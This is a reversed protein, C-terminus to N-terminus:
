GERGRSVLLHLEAERRGHHHRLLHASFDAVNLEVTSSRESLDKELSAVFRSGRFFASPPPPTPPFSLRSLPLFAMHQLPISTTTLHARGFSAPALTITKLTGLARAAMLDTADEDFPDRGTARGERGGEEGAGAASEGSGGGKGQGDKRGRGEEGASGEEGDANSEEGKGNGAKEGEKNDGEQQAQGDQGRQTSQKDEGEDEEDSSSDLPAIAPHRRLLNHALAVVVIAGSPPACLSLRFLQKTFAAAMYAPLLPSALSLDLLEFFKARHTARFVSSDLLRYLRPYFHPAELGHETVLRFLSALAAVACAGGQEYSATLFDSLPPIPSWLSSSPCPATPRTLHHPTHPTVVACPALPILIYWQTPLHHPYYLFLMHRPLIMPACPLFHVLCKLCANSSTLPSLPPPLAPTGEQLSRPASAPRAAGAVGRGTGQAGGGGGSGVEGGGGEGQEGEEERGGEDKMGRLGNGAASSGQRDGESAVWVRSAGGSSREGQAGCPNPFLRACPLAATLPHHAPLHACTLSFRSRCTLSFRSRCTLSFRSRCTLSFRSRCALSFLSRCTLSFRSRCTRPLLFPPSAVWPLCCAGSPPAPLAWTSLLEDQEGGGQGVEALLRKGGAKPAPPMPMALLVDLINLCMADQSQHTSPTTLIPSFVPYTLLTSRLVAAPTLRLWHPHVCNSHNVAAAAMTACLQEVAGYVHRRVDAHTFFCAFKALVSPRGGRGGVLPIARSVLPIARSVLPILIKNITAGALGGKKELRALEMLHEVAIRKSAASSEASRLRAKLAGTYEGYRARAWQQYVEEKAREEGARGSAGGARNAPAPHLLLEHSRLLQAFFAQLVTVAEAAVAGDRHAAFRLLAVVNNVHERSQLLQAGLRQVQELPPAERVVM